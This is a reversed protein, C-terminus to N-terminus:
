GPCTKTASMTRDKGLEALLFAALGQWGDAQKAMTFRSKRSIALKERLQRRVARLSDVTGLRRGRRQHRRPAFSARSLRRRGVTRAGFCSAEDVSPCLRHAPNGSMQEGQVGPEWGDKMWCGIRRAELLPGQEKQLRHSPGEIKMPGVSISSRSVASFRRKPKGIVMSIESSYQNTGGTKPRHEALEWRGQTWWIFSSIPSFM